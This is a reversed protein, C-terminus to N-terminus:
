PYDFIWPQGAAGNRLHWQWHGTGSNFRFVGPGDGGVGDWDGGVVSDTRTGNGYYFTIDATGSSLSNRELWTFSDPAARVVGPTDGGVGDWNGALPADGFGTLGYVLNYDPDGGSPANRLHWAKSGSANGGAVGPGDGGIGDWNGAVPWYALADNVYARGYTFKIEGIGSTNSNHLNWQWDHYSGGAAVPRVVGPTDGGAGDWNGVVPIDCSNGYNIVIDPPGANPGNRLQWTLNVGDDVVVGIGDGGIGDWNGSIPWIRNSCGAARIGPAAGTAAAATAAPAVAAALAM